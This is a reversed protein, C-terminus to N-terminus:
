RRHQRFQKRMVDVSSVFSLNIHTADKEITYLKSELEIDKYLTPNSNDIAQVPNSSVSSCNLIPIDQFSICNRLGSDKIQANVLLKKYASKFQRV